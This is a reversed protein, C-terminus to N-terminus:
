TRTNKLVLFKLHQVIHIQPIYLVNHKDDIVHDIRGNLFVRIYIYIIMDYAWSIIRTDIYNM